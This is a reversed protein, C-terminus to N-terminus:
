EHGYIARPLSQFFYFPVISRPDQVLEIILSRTAVWRHADTPGPAIYFGILPQPNRRTYETFPYVAKSTLGPWV